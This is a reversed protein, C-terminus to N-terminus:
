EIKELLIMDQGQAISLFTNNDTSEKSVGRNNDGHNGQVGRDM